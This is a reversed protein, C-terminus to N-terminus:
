PEYLRARLEGAAGAITTERVSALPIPPGEFPRVADRLHQRAEAPTQGALPRLDREALKVLVQMDLDLELGDLRIPEGAVRRKMVPPLASVVRAGAIELRARPTVPQATSVAV